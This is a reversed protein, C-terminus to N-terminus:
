RSAFINTKSKNCHKSYADTVYHLYNLKIIEILKHYKATNRTGKFNGGEGEALLIDLINSCIENMTKWTLSNFDSPKCDVSMVSPDEGM